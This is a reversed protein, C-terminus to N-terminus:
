FLTGSSPGPIPVGSLHLLYLIGTIGGFFVALILLSLVLWKKNWSYRSPACTSLLATCVTLTYFIAVLTNIAVIKGFKSFLQITTFCLPISATITTIASSLISVGITSVAHKTKWQRLKSGTLNSPALDKSTLFGEILHICYDVSSGVLISLSVAEVAGLQWGLLYFTSIVVLMIGLITVLAIMAIGIHGTFVVVSVACVMLSFVLGYIASTVGVIEMFVQQWYDCTQFVTDLGVREESTLNALMDQIVRDWSTFDQYADFSSKGEFINSEFAMTFWLVRNDHLRAHSLAKQDKVYNPKPLNQCEPVTEALLELYPELSRPFCEAGGPKVLDVRNALHHCIKCLARLTDTRMVDFDKNYYVTGKSDSLITHHSMTGRDLRSLGFVVYVTATNRLIPKAAPPRCSHKKCPDYGEQPSNKNSQSSRSPHLTELPIKTSKPLSPESPERAGGASLMTGAIRLPAHLDIIVWRWKIVPEAVFKRLFAGIFRTLSATEQKEDPIKKVDDVTTNDFHQRLVTDDMNDRGEPLDGTGLEEDVVDPLRVADDDLPGGIPPSSLSSVASLVMPGDFGQSIAGASATQQFDSPTQISDSSKQSLKRFLIQECHLYKHWLALAAPMILLVLIWCYSIIFTMFLGFQYVAPIQSAMNAGFAGATTFSTFFTAVGAVKITHAMRLKLDTFQVAQRFTNVFVFVDDVGIGIVVFASALNLLGLAEIGCIVHYSFYAWSFSALISIIGCLTLWVSFSTLVFLLTAIAALTPIALLLDHRITASIESDFIENGGYLVDVTSNLILLLHTSIIIISVYSFM